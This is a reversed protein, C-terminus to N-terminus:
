EGATDNKLQDQVYAVDEAEMEIKIDRIYKGLTKLKVDKADAEAKIVLLHNLMRKQYSKLELNTPM